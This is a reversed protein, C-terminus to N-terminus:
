TMECIRSPANMRRATRRGPNVRTSNNTTMAMMPMKILKSRGATWRTRSDALRM